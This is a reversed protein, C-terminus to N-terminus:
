RRRGYTMWRWAREVPGSDFRTLWWRSAVLQFAFLAVAIGVGTAAGVQGFLGLGYGYFVTSLVVSQLLYNSLALRGAAELHRLPRRTHVLVGAAAIGVTLVPAALSMLLVQGALVTFFGGAAQVGVVLVNLPVGVGLGFRALARLRTRQTAVDTFLGTRAAYMGLLMMALVVPSFTLGFLLGGPTTAREQVLDLYGGLHYVGTLRAAEAVDATAAARQATDLASAAPSWAVVLLALAVTTLTGLIGLAWVLQTRPARNVFLMLVLGVLAYTTLIDGFWVFVLHIAGILFLAALRRLYTARWRGHDRQLRAVQTAVGFGFLLSFLGIFKGEALVKVAIAAVRDWQGEISTAALHEISPATKFLTMNVLVIGLLALGRLMDIVPLRSSTPTPHASRTSARDPSDVTTSM